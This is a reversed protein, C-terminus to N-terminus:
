CRQAAGLYQLAPVAFAASMTMGAKLAQFVCFRGAAMLRADARRRKTSGERYLTTTKVDEVRGPLCERLSVLTPLHLAALLGGPLFLGDPWGERRARALAPRTRAM